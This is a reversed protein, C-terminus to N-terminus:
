PLSTTSAALRRKDIKGVATKPLEDLFELVTPVKFPALDARCRAIVADPDVKTGRAAVIVAKVTEGRYDDPIGVVAVEAVGDVQAIVREIEAPYVNYGSAVIVEKLRGVIYLFGDADVKALDGSLLWGDRLTTATLEPDGWYGQMVQPGRIALEGAEGPAVEVLGAGPELLRVETFPVPIGSSGARRALFPPNTHTCPSTESMGFGDLVKTAVRSEFQALQVPPMPAGASNFMKVKDLNFAELDAERLFAAYMTPVGFFAFPQEDRILKLVTRVQFRPVILQHMGIAIGTLTVCTMGYVHCMPLTNVVKADPPVNIARFTLRLRQEINSLINQHTLMVAKPLGTTGGTYQLVAIDASQHPATQATALPGIVAQNLLPGDAEGVRCVACDVGIGAAAMKVMQKATTVLVTPQAHDLIRKIETAVYAPNVQVVTADVQWTAFMAAVYDPMNPLLIAVRGGPAVKANVLLTALQRSREALEAFTWAIGPTSLAIRTAFSAVAKMLLDPLRRGAVGLDDLAGAPYLSEWPHTTISSDATM